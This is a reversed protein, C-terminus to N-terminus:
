CNLENFMEIDFFFINILLIQIQRFIITIQLGARINYNINLPGGALYVYITHVKKIRKTVYPVNVTSRIAHTQVLPSVVYQCSSIPNGCISMKVITLSASYTMMILWEVM